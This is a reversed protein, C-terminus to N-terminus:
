RVGDWRTKRGEGCYDWTGKFRTYNDNFQLIVNGWYSSGDKLVNGCGSWGSDEVWYGEWKGQKDISYFLIRGNKYKYDVRTDDIIKLTANSSGWTTRWEGKALRWDGTKNYVNESSNLRVLEPRRQEESYLQNARLEIYRTMADAQDEEIEALAKDGLNTSSDFYFVPSLEPIQYLGIAPDPLDIGQGNLLLNFLRTSNADATYSSMNFPRHGFSASRSLDLYQANNALDEIHTYTRTDFGRGLKPGADEPTDADVFTSLSLVLNRRNQLIHINDSFDIKEIWERHGSIPIDAASLVVSSLLGTQLAQKEYLEEMFIKLPINGMSHALLTVQRDGVYGPKRSKYENFAFLFDSLGKSSDRAQQYPRLTSGGWSLWHILVFRTNSSTETYPIVSSDFEKEFNHGRGHIYFVVNRNNSPEFILDLIEDSESIKFPRKLGTDITYLEVGNNDIRRLNWQGRANTQGAMWSGELNDADKGILWQGHVSDFGTVDGPLVEFGIVGDEIVGTIETKNRSDTATIQNGNQKLKLILKQFSNKFYETHGSTIESVYTGTLDGGVIKKGNAFPEISDASFGETKKSVPETHAVGISDPDNTNACSALTLRTIAVLIYKLNLDM